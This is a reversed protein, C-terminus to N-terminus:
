IRRSRVCCAPVVGEGDCAAAEEVSKVHPVCVLFRYALIRRAKAREITVDDDKGPQGRGTGGAWLTQNILLGCV